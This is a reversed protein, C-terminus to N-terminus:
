ATNVARDRRRHEDTLGEPARVVADRMRNLHYVPVDRESGALEYITAGM